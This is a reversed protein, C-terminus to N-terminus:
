AKSVRMELNVTQELGANTGSGEFFIRNTGDEEVEQRSTYTKEIPAGDLSGRASWGGNESSDTRLQYPKGGLTGETQIHMGQNDMFIQMTLDAEVQGISGRISTGHEAPSFTLSTDTEGFRQKFVFGQSDETLKLSNGEFYNNGVYGGGHGVYNNEDPAHLGTGQDFAVEGSVTNATLYVGVGLQPNLAASLGMALAFQFSPELIPLQSAEQPTDILGFEHVQDMPEVAATEAQPVSTGCTRRIPQASASQIAAFM